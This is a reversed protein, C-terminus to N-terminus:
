FPLDDDKEVDGGMPASERRPAEGAGGARAGVGEPVDGIEEAEARRKGGSGLFQVRDARVRLKSRKEGEKTQWQDLQLKGEVLVPSGKKLYEACTQAIRGWVQIDVFCVSEVMEGTKSKYSESVALGLEAVAMGSPTYRLEPDRTLNGALFVRNMSPM